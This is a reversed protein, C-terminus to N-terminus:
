HLIQVAQGDTVITAGRVVVREGARLGERVAILNGSLEGLRVRRLRAVAAARSSVGRGRLRRLGGHRRGAARHRRAAGPAGPGRGRKGAAPHRAHGGQAPGPSQAARGRGRLCPQQSRGLALHPHHAGRARVGPLAEAQIPVPQGLKLRAVVVDPVGFVVKVVRTDAISFAPASPGALSGVEVSRRLICGTSPRGCRPTAWRSRRRAGGPRARPTAPTPPTTSRRAPRATRTCSRPASM